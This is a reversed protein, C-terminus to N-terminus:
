HRNSREFVAKGIKSDQWEDGPNTRNTMIWFTTMKGWDNNYMGTLSTVSKSNGIHENNFAVTFGLYYDDEFKTYRGKLPYHNDPANTWTGTITGAGAPSSDPECDLDIHAVHPSYWSGQIGCNAVFVLTDKSDRKKAKMVMNLVDDYDNKIRKILESDSTPAATCILSLCLVIAIIRIM